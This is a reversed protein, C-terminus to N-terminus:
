ELMEHKTDDGYEDIHTDLHTNRVEHVEVHCGGLDADAGSDGSRNDAHVPEKHETATQYASGDASLDGAASHDAKDARYGDYEEYQTHDKTVGRGHLERGVEFRENERASIGIPTINKMRQPSQVETIHPAIKLRATSPSPLYVEIAEPRKMTITQPPPIRGRM